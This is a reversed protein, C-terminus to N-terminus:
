NNIEKEESLFQNFLEDPTLLEDFLFYKDRSPSYSYGNTHVWRAFRKGREMEETAGDIFGARYSTGCHVYTGKVLADMFADQARQEIDKM